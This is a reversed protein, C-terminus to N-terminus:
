SPKCICFKCLSLDDKIFMRKGDCYYLDGKKTIEAGNDFKLGPPHLPKKAIFVLYTSIGKIYQKLDADNPAHINLYHDIRYQLEKLKVDDVELDPDIRSTNLIEIFNDYNYRTMISSISNQDPGDALIKQEIMSKFISLKEMDMKIANLLESAKM